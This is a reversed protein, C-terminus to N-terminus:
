AAEKYNAFLNRERMQIKEMASLHGAASNCKMHMLVLNSIHNPGGHAVPVLHDRTIDEGLPLGCLFCRDGDRDLLARVNVQKSARKTAVGASWSGGGFFAKLAATAAAQTTIEGRANKYVIGTSSGSKFRLVEWENTPVLIEAGRAALWDKLAPLKGTVQKLTYSM